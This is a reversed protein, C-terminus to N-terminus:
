PFIYAVSFFFGTENVGRFQADLRVEPTPDWNTGILFGVPDSESIPGRADVFDFLMGAYPTLQPVRPVNYSVAPALQFENWDIDRGQLFPPIRPKQLM